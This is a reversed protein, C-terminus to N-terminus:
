DCLDTAVSPLSRSTARLPLISYTLSLAFARSLNKKDELTLTLTM